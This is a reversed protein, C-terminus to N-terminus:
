SIEELYNRLNTEIRRNPDSYDAPEFPKALMRQYLDIYKGSVSAVFEPPMAPPVQGPQGTFGQAALWERVFEKSLQSPRRDTIGWTFQYFEREPFYRASDPTHVEDIVVLQTTALNGFEYKTDAMVLGRRRAMTQGRRFLGLSLRKMEAYEAETALGREIVEQPTINEDHGIDAKTTPTLLPTEFEDFEYMGEALENGCIDRVGEENYAKWASGLLFGRVIMEIKLPKAKHGITVNPDPSALRWNPAVDATAELLEASVQNLVQGKYPISKPLVVDYASIRDTRVVALLEHDEHEITYVDGVKGHYPGGVQGPLQLNTERIAEAM